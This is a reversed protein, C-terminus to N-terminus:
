EFLFTWIWLGTLCVRSPPLVGSDQLVNTVSEVLETKAAPDMGKEISEHFCDCASERLVDISLHHLLLGVFRENAILSIDIWSVYVGVVELCLCALEPNASEYNKQMNQLFFNLM